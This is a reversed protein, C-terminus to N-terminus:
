GIYEDLTSLQSNKYYNDISVDKGFWDPPIFQDCESESSFEVEVTTLGQLREEFIDLEAVLGGDLPIMYRTKKVSHGDIKESLNQFEELSIQMEFEQRSIHGREKVTLWYESDKQRIRITPMKSIYAQVISFSTYQELNDPVRDVLYKKEIELM